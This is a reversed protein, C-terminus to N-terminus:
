RPSYITDGLFRSPHSTRRSRAASHRATLSLAQCRPQGRTNHRGPLSDLSLDQSIPRRLTTSHPLTGLLRTWRFLHYQAGSTTPTTSSHGLTTTSLGVSRRRRWCTSLLVLRPQSALHRAAQCVWLPSATDWTDESHNCQGQRPLPTTAEVDDRNDEQWDITRGDASDAGSVDLRDLWGEHRLSADLAGNIRRKEM